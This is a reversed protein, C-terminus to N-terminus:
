RYFGSLGPSIHMASPEVQKCARAYAEEKDVKRVAELAPAYIRSLRHALDAVYANLWFYPIAATGGQRPAADQIQTYAFYSMTYTASGDPSPWLTLTPALLRDFWAVTPFGQQSPNALSAYDTRSFNTILRNSSGNNIYIDLVSVINVPVNYTAVGQTLPQDIKEVTWWTIGDAGWDSQMFNVELWADEMHQPSIETRRVGCRAFANLTITGIPPNFTYTGSNNTM